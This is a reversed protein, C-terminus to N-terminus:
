AQGNGRSTKIRSDDLLKQLVPELCRAIQANAEPSYHGGELYSGSIKLQKLCPIPDFYRVSASRLMRIALASEKEQPDASSELESKYPLYLVLPIAGDKLVELILRQIQHKGLQMAKQKRIVEQDDSPSRFSYAFRFIYSKELLYWIGGREWKYPLYYEDYALGPLESIRRNAFIQRPDPVPDTVITLVGDKLVFKPRAFPIGWENQFFPYINNDRTIMSSTIGIIVIQPKWPRVDKEYRLLAQTLGQATLAFNLIQAHPELLAELSHGWSDECRVEYGYTMSDGILAIRVSAVNDSANFHQTRVDGFSLGVSPSRSGKTSSAYLGSKDSRSPAVTWGLNPDYIVYSGEDEMEELMKEYFSVVQSWERPYLQVGFLTRGGPVQRSQFRAFTEMTGLTLILVVLNMVILQFLPKRDQSDSKIFRHTIVAICLVTVITACLFTLGPTSHIFSLIDPRTAARYLSLLSLFTGAEAACLAFFMVPKHMRM